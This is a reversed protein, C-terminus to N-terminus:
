PRDDTTASGGRLQGGITGTRDAASAGAATASSAPAPAAAATSNTTRQAVARRFGARDQETLDGAAVTGEEILAQEYAQALYRCASVLFAGSGMAPDVVRLALIAFADGKRVGLALLGNAYSEVREAAEAWSLPRWEAGDQVLYAPTTRGAAAADRWLREITRKEGM